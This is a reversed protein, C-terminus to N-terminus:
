YHFIASRLFDFDVVSGLAELVPIGADTKKSYESYLLDVAQVLERTHVKALDIGHKKTEVALYFELYRRKNEELEKIAKFDGDIFSEILIQPPESKICIRNIIGLYKQLESFDAEDLGAPKEFNTSPGFWDASEVFYRHLGSLLSLNEILRYYLPRNTQGPLQSAIQRLDVRLSDIPRRNLTNLICDDIYKHYLEHVISYLEQYKSHSVIGTSYSYAGGADQTPDDIAPFWSDLIEVDSQNIRMDIGIMNLVLKGDEISQM